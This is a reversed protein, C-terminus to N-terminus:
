GGKKQEKMELMCLFFILHMNDQHHKKKKKKKENVRCAPFQVPHFTFVFLCIFYHTLYTVTIICTFSKM